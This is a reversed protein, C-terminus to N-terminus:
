DHIKELEATFVLFSWMHFCLLSSRTWLYGIISVQEPTGEPDLSWPTIRHYLVNSLSIWV